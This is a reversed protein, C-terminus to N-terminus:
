SRKQSRLSREAAAILRSIRSVSLGLETAMRTMTIDCRGCAGCLAEGM